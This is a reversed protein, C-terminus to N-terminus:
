IESLPVITEEISIGGHTIEKSKINGFFHSGNAFLIFDNKPVFRSVFLSCDTSKQEEEALTIRDYILCRKGQREVLM